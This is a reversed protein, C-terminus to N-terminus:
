ALTTPDASTGILNENGKYPIAYSWLIGSCCEYHLKVEGVIPSYLKTGVPCHKLIKIINM